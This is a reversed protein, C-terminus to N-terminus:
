CRKGWVSWIGDSIDMVGTAVDDGFSWFVATRVDLSGLRVSQRVNASMRRLMIAEIDM